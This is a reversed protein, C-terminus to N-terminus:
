AAFEAWAKFSEIRPIRGTGAYKKDALYGEPYEMRSSVLSVGDRGWLYLETKRTECRECEYVFERQGRRALDVRRGPSSSAPEWKHGKGRCFLITSSMNTTREDIDVALRRRKAM